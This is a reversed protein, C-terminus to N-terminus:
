ASSSRPTSIRATAPPYLIYVFGCCCSTTRRNMLLKRGGSRSDIGASSVSATIAYLCGTVAGSIESIRPTFVAPTILVSSSLCKIVVAPRLSTIPRGIKYLVDFSNKIRNPNLSKSSSGLKFSNSASARSANPLSSPNAGASSAAVFSALMSVDTVALPSGSPAGDPEGSATVSTEISAENTAAEDAPAFGEDSGLAERALAEFEKLSPLEELDSLGFRMLFEKSTKYLIPRGIVEKRGATSILHKDLLTSIVGATNVGRIESIEPSTVPQKYAIVALTELAPMSLRLPPRLSKIFRRVVDHQQPKTYMKYGGAVARIEVGREEDAYSAVLEDLSAQVALKEEGLAKTLQDITAPEDAAYIIAELAAKREENTM